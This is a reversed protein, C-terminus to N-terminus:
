IQFVQCANRSRVAYAWARVCKSFDSIKTTLISRCLSTCPFYKQAPLAKKTNKIKRLTIFSRKNSIDVIDVISNM